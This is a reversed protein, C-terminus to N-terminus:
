GPVSERNIKNLLMFILKRLFHSIGRNIGSSFEHCFASIADTPTSFPYDHLQGTFFKGLDEWLPMELSGPLDSNKSFGTGIIPICHGQVIDGLV